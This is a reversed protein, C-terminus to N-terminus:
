PKPNPLIGSNPPLGTSVLKRKEWEELSSPDVVLDKWNAPLAVKTDTRQLTMFPQPPPHDIPNFRIGAAALWSLNSPFTPAYVALPAPISKLFNMQRNLISQNQFCGSTYFALILLSNLLAVTISGRAMWGGLGPACLCLLPACLLIPFLWGQPIWRAWWAQSLLCSVLLGLAPLWSIKPIGPRQVLAWLFGGVALWLVAGYLPGFGGSRPDPNLDEFLALEPRDFWFPMKLSWKDTTTRTPALHSRLFAELKSMQAVNGPPSSGPGIGIGPSRMDSLFALEQWGHIKGRQFVMAAAAVALLLLCGVVMRILQIRKWGRKALLSGMFFLGFIIGYILGSQKSGAVLMFVVALFIWRAAQLPSWYVLLYACLLCTLLSGTFGDVYFSSLQYVLVPNLAAAASLLWGWGPSFSVQRATKLCCGFAALGALLNIGKGGELCGGSLGLWASLLHPLFSREPLAGQILSEVYGQRVAMGDFSFDRFPAAASFSAGLALLLWALVAVSRWGPCLIWAVLVAPAFFLIGHLAGLPVGFRFLVMSGFYLGWFGALLSASGAWIDEAWRAPIDAVKKVHSSSM